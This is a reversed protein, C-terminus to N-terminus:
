YAFLGETEQLAQIDQTEGPRVFLPQQGCKM